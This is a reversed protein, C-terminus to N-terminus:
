LSDIIEVVSKVSHAKSFIKGRLEAQKKYYLLTDKNILMKKIGSYLSETDNNTVIGYENNEGMQEFAGSVSTTVVPVGLILAETVATSFGELHSSCVFLDCRSVVQYPNKCFGLLHVTDCDGNKKIQSILAERNDGTGLIYLHNKIGESKLRHHVDILRDFGKLAILRGVSVINIDNSLKLNTLSESALKKIKDDENTNYVVQNDKLMPYYSTFNQMVDSSVYIMKDFSSYCKIAEAKSRFSYFTDKDFNHITHVWCIKKISKDSCGSLIRATPGELYSIVVDYKEKVFFHYLWSPRFLKMLFVNGSFQKVKGEILRIRKDLFEANVGARFLTQVTIDFKNVDMSNLLNVLVREAGGGQLNPILFLLKKKGM